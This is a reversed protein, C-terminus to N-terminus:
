LTAWLLGHFFVMSYNCVEVYIVTLLQPATMACVVSVNYIYTPFQITGYVTPRDIDRSKRIRSAKNKNPIFIMSDVANLDGRGRRRLVWCALHLGGETLRAVVRRLRPDVLRRLERGGGM